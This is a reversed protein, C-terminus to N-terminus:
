IILVLANYFFANFFYIKNSMALIITVLGGGIIFLYLLSVFLSSVIEDNM